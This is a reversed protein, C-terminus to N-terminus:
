KFLNEIKERYKEEIFKRKLKLSPTYEGTQITWNDSLLEFKKIQEHPSFLKNYSEIEKAYRAKIKPHNVATKDDMYGIGKFNAWNHLYQFDPVVLAGVFKENEGLVIIQEIFCSERINSELLEPSVYKGMSTKFISKKRGTIRLFRGEEILGIDGTHFWGDSDIVEATMEPEHYYGQMVNPGKIKIEGDDAIKVEVDKIAPGVTGFKLSNPNLNNVAIVPSTETLGYGELIQLKAAWFVRAIRENLAAGGSVIIFINGGLAERWKTYVLSDAIKLKIKYWISQKPEIEYKHALNIAWLFIMKKILSLNRGRFMIRDYVKEMLRPVTSFCHPKVEKINDVITGMSQVYYISCGLYQWVYNLMREYVHCLPLFSLIVSHENQLTLPACSMFNSIINAHNLMVGKPVGTTGSTYIITALDDTKIAAKTQELLEENVNESGTKYLESIHKVKESPIISYVEKITTSSRIIKELKQYLTEDELIVYKVESHNLIFEYENENINPYIPVVIAGAQMIGMDAFNWQPCNSSIIAVKDGKKIGFKILAYSIFNAHDIYQRSSYNEWEGTLKGSVSIPKNYTKQLELLDFLRLIEKM